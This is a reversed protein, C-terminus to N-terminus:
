LNSLAADVDDLLRSVVICLLETQVEVPLVKFHQLVRIRALRRMLLEANDECVAATLDSVIPIHPSGQLYHVWPDDYITREFDETDVTDGSISGDDADDM